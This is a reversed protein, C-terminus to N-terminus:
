GAQRRAVAAGLPNHVRHCDAVEDWALVLGPAAGGEVVTRRATTDAVLVVADQATAAEEAGTAVDVDGGYALLNKLLAQVNDTNPLGWLLIREVGATCAATEAVAQLAALMVHDREFAHVGDLDVTPDWVVSRTFHEVAAVFDAGGAATRAAVSAREAQFATLLDAALGRKEEPVYGAAIRLSAALAWELGGRYRDLHTGAQTMGLQTRRPLDAAPRVVHVYFPIPLFAVSGQTLLRFVWVFAWHVTRPLHLIPHLAETRYVAIEPFIRNRLLFQWCPWADGATFVAPEGVEYFTGLDRGGRDDRSVWPAQVCALGPNERFMGVIAAVRDLLLRDDDGLYVACTGRAARLASVVNREAGVNERQRLYRVPLGRGLAAECVERTADTSANDSVVVEIEFPLDRLGELHALCRELFPAREFTPICVSLEPPM